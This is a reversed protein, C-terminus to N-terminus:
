PGEHGCGDNEYADVEKSAIWVTGLGITVFVFTFHLICLIYWDVNGNYVIDFYYLANYVKM